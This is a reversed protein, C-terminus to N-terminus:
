GCQGDESSYIAGAMSRVSIVKDLPKVIKLDVIINVSHYHPIEVEVYGKESQLLLPPLMFSIM